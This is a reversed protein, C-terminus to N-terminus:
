VSLKELALMAWNDRTTTKLKKLHHNEAERVLDDVDNEYFGSLILQGGNVLRRTYEGTQDLLVNKNINAIVIDFDHAGVESIQGKILEVDKVDNLAFNEESNEICWDDIDTAVLTSAGRRAAMIALIGTGTGVDLVRKNAHNLGIQYDLVQYTTAHHGTGFSMKPTVIIEYEFQPQPQHFSARVICKDGVIIPDYNKEWEENWNIKEQEKIEFGINPFLAIIENVKADDYSEQNCSGEFGDDFEQFSDFGIEFLEAILVESLDPPCTVKITVFDM